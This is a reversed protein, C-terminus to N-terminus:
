SSRRQRAMALMAQRGFDSESTRDRATVRRVEAFEDETMYVRVITTRRQEPTM